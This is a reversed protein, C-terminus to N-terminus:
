IGVRLKDSLRGICRSSLLLFRSIWRSSTPYVNTAQWNKKVPGLLFAAWVEEGSKYIGFIFPIPISSRYLSYICLPGGIECSKRWMAVALCCSCERRHEPKSGGRYSMKSIHQWAQIELFFGSSQFVKSPHFQGDTGAFLWFQAKLIIGNRPHYSQM